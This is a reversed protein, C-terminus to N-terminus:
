FHSQFKFLSVGPRLTVSLPLLFVYCEWICSPFGFLLACLSSLLIGCNWLCSPLRPLSVYCFFYFFLVSNSILHIDKLKFMFCSCFFIIDSCTPTFTLYDYVLLICICCTVLNRVSNCWSFTYRWTISFHFLQLHCCDLVSLYICHLM